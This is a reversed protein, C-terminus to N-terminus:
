RIGDVAKQLKIEFIKCQGPFELSQYAKARLLFLM